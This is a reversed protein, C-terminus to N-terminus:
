SARALRREFEDPQPAVTPVVDEHGHRPVYTIDDNMEYHGVKTTGQESCDCLENPYPCFKTKWSPVLKLDYRGKAKDWFLQQERPTPPALEDRLFVSNPPDWPSFMTWTKDHDARAARFAKIYEQTVAWKENMTAHLDDRNMPICDVLIPEVKEIRAQSDPNMPLYCVFFGKRVPMGADVLAHYYASLQAIHEAKAGDREVWYLGEGKITKLDGLVFCRKAFDWFLWDATGQWGEPLYEGLRVEGMVAFGENVFYDRILDHWMTGTKLRIDSVLESEITPAGALRLQAHRLSGLIDSSCHLKGDPPRRDQALGRRLAGVLDVPVM